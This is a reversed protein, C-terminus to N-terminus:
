GSFGKQDIAVVGGPEPHLYGAHVFKADNSVNLLELFRQLNRLVAALENPRKKAYKEQDKEFQTSPEIEWM